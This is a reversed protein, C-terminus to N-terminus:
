LVLASFQRILIDLQPVSQPIQPPKFGLVLIDLILRGQLQQTFM